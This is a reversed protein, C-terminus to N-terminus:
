DIDTFVTAGNVDKAIANIKEKVLPNIRKTSYIWNAISQRSGKCEDVIRKTVQNYIGFPVSDLWQRLKEGDKSLPKRSRIQM